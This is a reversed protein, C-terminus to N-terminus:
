NALRVLRSERIREDRTVLPIKHVMCTAVILKDALDWSPHLASAQSGIAFSIPIVHYDEFATELVTQAVTVRKLRFLDNVEWYSIAAIALDHRSILSRVKRDLKGIALEVFFHTDLCIL